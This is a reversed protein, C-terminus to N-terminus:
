ADIGVQEVNSYRVLNTPLHLKMMREGFSIAKLVLAQTMTFLLSMLYQWPIFPFRNHFYQLKLKQQM